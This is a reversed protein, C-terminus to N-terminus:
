SVSGKNPKQKRLLFGVLFFDLCGLWSGWPKPVIDFTCYVIINVHM